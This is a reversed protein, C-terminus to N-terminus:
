LAASHEILQNRLTPIDVYTLEEGAASYSDSVTEGPSSLLLVCLDRGLIPESALMIQAGSAPGWVAPDGDIPCLYAAFRDDAELAAHLTSRLLFPQVCVAVRVPVGRSSM